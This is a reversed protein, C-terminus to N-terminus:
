RMSTFPLYIRHGAGPTPSATADPTATGTATATPSATATPTPTPVVVPWRAYHVDSDTASVWETWVSHVFGDAYDLDPSGSDAAGNTVPQGAAPPPPNHRFMVTDQRDAEQWVLLSGMVEDLALRPALSPVGSSNSMNPALWGGDVKCGLVVDQNGPGFDQEWALCFDKPTIALNAMRAKYAPPGEDNTCTAGGHPLRAYAVQPEEGEELMDTRAVYVNGEADVAVSPAIAAEFNGCNGASVVGGARLHALYPRGSDYTYDSWAVWLTGDRPSFAVDPQTGDESLDIPPALESWQGTGPNFTRVFVETRDDPNQRSADRVFAVAVASGNSAIAPQSGGYFLTTVGSWVGATSLSRYAINLGEEWVVHVKGDSTVAVRAMD